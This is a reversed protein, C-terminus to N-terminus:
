SLIPCLKQWRKLWGAPQLRRSGVEGRQTFNEFFGKGQELHTNKVRLGDGTPSSCWCSALDLM